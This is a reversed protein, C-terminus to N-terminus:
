EIYIVVPQSYETSIFTTKRWEKELTSLSVCVCSKGRRERKERENEVL